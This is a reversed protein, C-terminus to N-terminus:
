KLPSYDTPALFRNTVLANIPGDKETEARVRAWEPDSQFATWKRERDAMSEFALMYVLRNNQGVVEEWFGIVKIDYKEFFSLTHERFRRHLAPLRGPITDYIRLEYLM